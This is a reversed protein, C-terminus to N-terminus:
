RTPAANRDAAPLPQVTIVVRVLRDLSSSEAENEAPKPAPAQGESFSVGRAQGGLLTKRRTTDYGSSQEGTKLDDIDALLVCLERLSMTLVIEQPGTQTGPSGLVNQQIVLCEPSDNKQQMATQDTPTPRSAVNQQLAEKQDITREAETRSAPDTSAAKLETKPSVAEEAAHQKPQTAPSEAVDKNVESRAVIPSETMRYQEGAKKAIEPTGLDTQALGRVRADALARDRIDLRALTKEVTQRTLDPDASTLVIRIEPAGTLTANTAADLYARESTKGEALKGPQNTEDNELRDRDSLALMGSARKEYHQASGAIEDSRPSSNTTPAPM